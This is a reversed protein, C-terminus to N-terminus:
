NNKLRQEWTLCTEELAPIITNKFISIIKEAEAETLPHDHIRKRQLRVRNGKRAFFTNLSWGCSRSVEERFYMPASSLKNYLDDLLNLPTSIPMHKHIKSWHTNTTIIEEISESYELPLDLSFSVVRCLAETYTRRIGGVFSMGGESSVRNDRILRDVAKAKYAIRILKEYITQNVAQKLKTHEKKLQELDSQVVATMKTIDDTKGKAIRRPFSKVIVFCHSM